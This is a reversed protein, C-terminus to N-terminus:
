WCGLRAGTLGFAERATFTLVDFDVGAAALYGTDAARLSGIGDLWVSGGLQVRPARHDVAVVQWELGRTSEGTATRGPFQESSYGTVAVVECTGAVKAAASSLGVAAAVLALVLSHLLLRRTM